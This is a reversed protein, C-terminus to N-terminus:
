NLRGAYGRTGANHRNRYWKPILEPPDRLDSDLLFVVDLRQFQSYSLLTGLRVLFLSM